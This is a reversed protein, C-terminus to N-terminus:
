KTTKSLASAMQDLDYDKWAAPINQKQPDAWWDSYHFDILINMELAQARKAKVLVDEKNCWGDTPNVWVRYRVSNFGIEKFLATCETEEGAENYFKMGKSEMETAWSIDAGKAFALPEDTPGSEPVPEINKSHCACLLAAASLILFYKKM